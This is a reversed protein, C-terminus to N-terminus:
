AEGFYVFGVQHLKADINTYNPISGINRRVKLTRYRSTIAGGMHDHFSDFANSTSLRALFSKGTCLVAAGSRTYDRAVTPLEARTLDLEVRPLVDYVLMACNFAVVLAFEGYPNVSTILQDPAEVVRMLAKVKDTITDNRM